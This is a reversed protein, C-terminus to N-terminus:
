RRKYELAEVWGYELRGRDPAPERDGVVTDVRDSGARHDDDGFAGLGDGVEVDFL